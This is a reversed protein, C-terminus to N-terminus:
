RFCRAELWPPVSRFFPLHRILRRKKRRTREMARIAVTTSAGGGATAVGAGQARAVKAARLRGSVVMVSTWDSGAPEFGEGTPVMARGMQRTLPTMAGAMLKSTQIGVALQFPFNWATPLPPRAPDILKASM